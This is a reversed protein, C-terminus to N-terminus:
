ASMRACISGPQRTAAVHQQLALCLQARGFYLASHARYFRRCGEHAGCRCQNYEQTANPDAATTANSSTTAGYRLWHPDTPPPRDSHIRALQIGGGRFLGRYGEYNWMGWPMVEVLVAGRAMWLANTLHAGHATVLVTASHVWRAQTCISANGSTTVVRVSARPVAQRLNRILASLNAFSRRESSANLHLGSYAALSSNLPASSSRPQQTDGRLLIVIREARDRRRGDSDSSPLHRERLGCHRWVARRMLESTVPARLWHHRGGGSGLPRHGPCTHVPKRFGGHLRTFPLLVRLLENIWHTRRWGWHLMAPAYGRIVAEDIIPMLVETQHGHNNLYRQAVPRLASVCTSNKPVQFAMASETATCSHAREAREGAPRLANRSPQHQLFVAEIGRKALDRTRLKSAQAAVAEPTSGHGCVATLISVLMSGDDVLCTRNSAKRIRTWNYNHHPPADTSPTSSRACGEPARAWCGARHPLRTLPSRTCPLQVLWRPSCPQVHPECGDIVYRAVQGDSM